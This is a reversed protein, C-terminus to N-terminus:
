SALVGDEEMRKKIRLVTPEVRKFNIEERLFREILKKEQETAYRMITEIMDEQEVKKYAPEEHKLIREDYLIEDLGDECYSIKLKLMYPFAEELLLRSAVSPPHKKIIEYCEENFPYKKCYNIIRKQYSHNSLIMNLNSKIISPKFFDLKPYIYALPLPSDYDMIDKVFRNFCLEFDECNFIKSKFVVNHKKGNQM